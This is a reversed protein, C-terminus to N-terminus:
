TTQIANKGEKTQYRNLLGLWEARDIFHQKVPYIALKFQGNPMLAVAMREYAKTPGLAMSYAALQLRAYEPIAGTKSTKIDLLTPLTQGKRFGFRDFRGSYGHEISDVRHEILTPKFESILRFSRWARIYGRLHQPVKRFDLRSMDDAVTYEHVMSGRYRAIEDKCFPSILGAADLITTVSPLEKGDAYYKHEADSYELFATSTQMHAKQNNLDLLMETLM